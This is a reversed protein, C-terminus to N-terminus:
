KIKIAQKLDYEMCPKDVWENNGDNATNKPCKKISLTSTASSMDILFLGDKFKVLFVPKFHMFSYDTQFEIVKNFMSQVKMLELITTSYSYSYSDRTKVECICTTGGSQFTFDYTSYSDNLVKRIQTTGSTAGSFEKITDLEENIHEKFTNNKMKM